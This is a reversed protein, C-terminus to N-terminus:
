QLFVCFPLEILRTVGVLLPLTAYGKGRQEVEM